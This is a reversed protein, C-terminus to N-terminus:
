PTMEHRVASANAEGRTHGEGGESCARCQWQWTEGERYVESTHALGQPAKPLPTNIRKVRQPEWDTLIDSM